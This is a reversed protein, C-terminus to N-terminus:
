NVDKFATKLVMDYVHMAAGIWIAAALMVQMFSLLTSNLFHKVTSTSFLTINTFTSKLADPTTSGAFTVVVSGTTTAAQSDLNNIVKYM